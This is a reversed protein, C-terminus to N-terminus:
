LETVMEGRELWNLMNLVLMNWNQFGHNLIPEGNEPQYYEHMAGSREIDRGFLQVTKEALETAEAKFGYRELGRFVLYNSIGWIPGLWSSPNGSCRVNYMKEVKALTRIGFPANFTDNCHFHEKVVREAQEDTAVGAWLALFGSWILIRNIICDYDRPMGRHGWSGHEIPHLALDASFFYGAWEDWCHKQIADQLDKLDEHYHQVVEDLNLLECLYIMSELEKIMFCNLYISADSNLPRYYTCPDNDVGIGGTKVWFYLGTERNRRHSRYNNMFFHLFQMKERLWEVDDGSQKVVFAAHQALCPKHNNRELWSGAPEEREKKKERNICVPTEGHLNCFDLFNLICGQEYPLAKASEEESGVEALIQRLAVNSFFADWDWLVDAYQDSGPTLFPYDMTGGAERYMKHYDRHIYDRIIPAYHETPEM